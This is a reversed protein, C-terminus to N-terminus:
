VVCWKESFKGLLAAAATELRRVPPSALASYCNELSCLKGQQTFCQPTRQEWESWFCALKRLVLERSSQQKETDLALPQAEM